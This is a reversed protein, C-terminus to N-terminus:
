KYIYTSKIKCNQNGFYYINANKYLNEISFSINVKICAHM